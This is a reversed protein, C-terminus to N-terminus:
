RMDHLGNRDGLPDGDVGRIARTAIAEILDPYFKEHHTPQKGDRDGIGHIGCQRDALFDM